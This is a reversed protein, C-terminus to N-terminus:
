FRYDAYAGLTIMDALDASYGATAGFPHHGTVDIGLALAGDALPYALEAGVRGTVAFATGTAGVHPDLLVTELGAGVVPHVIADPLFRYNFTAGATYLAAPTSAGANTAVDLAHPALDFRLAFEAAGVALGLHLRYATAVHTIGDGLVFLGGMGAGVVVLGPTDYPDRAPLPAVPEEIVVPRPATHVVVPPPLPLSPQVVVSPFSVVRRLHVFIRPPPRQVVLLHTRVVGVPPVLVVPGGPAEVVEQAQVSQAIGVVLAVALGFRFSRRSNMM